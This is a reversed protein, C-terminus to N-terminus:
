ASSTAARISGKEYRRLEDIFQERTVPMNDKHNKSM